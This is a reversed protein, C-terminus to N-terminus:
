NMINGQEYLKNMLGDSVRSSIRAWYIFVSSFFKKNNGGVVYEPVNPLILNKEIFCYAFEIREANTLTKIFEDVPGDYTPEVVYVSPDTNKQVIPTAEAAATETEEVETEDVQAANKKAEKEAKKAEKAARKAAKKDVKEETAEESSGSAGAVVATTKGAKKGAKKKKPIFVLLRILNIIFQLLAAVALVYGFFGLTVNKIVFTFVVFLIIAIFELVYRIINAILMYLKTTKGLGLLDLVANIFVLVCLAIVVGALVKELIAGSFVAGFNGTFLASLVSAGFVAEGNNYISYDNIFAPLKGVIGSLKNSAVSAFLASFVAVVSLLLLIFKIIGSGKKYAISQVLLMLVCGGLAIVPAFAWNNWYNAGVAFQGLQILVFLGAVVAGLGEVFSATRLATRKYRNSAIVPILGVIAVVCVLVYLLVLVAGLDFAPIAGFLKVDKAYSYVFTDPAFPIKVGFAGLAAFAQMILMNDVKFAEKLPSLSVPALPVLLGALLCLLAIAYKALAVWKAPKSSKKIDKGM